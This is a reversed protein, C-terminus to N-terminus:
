GMVRASLQREAEALVRVVAAGFRVDCPHDVRGSRANGALETLAVRLAAVADRGAIPAVSRGPTGWLFLDVFEAAPPASLTVTASSTVGGEHHLVLHTVDAFGGDASVSVVPGLSAWLM